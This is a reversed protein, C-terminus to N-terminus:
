GKGASNLFGAMELLDRGLQFVNGEGFIAALGWAFGLVIAARFAWRVTPYKDLPNKSDDAM